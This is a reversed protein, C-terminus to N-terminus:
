QVALGFTLAKLNNNSGNLVDVDRPFFGIFYIVKIEAVFANSRVVDLTTVGFLRKPDFVGHKELVKAAIPVIFLHNLFSYQYSLLFGCLERRAERGRGNEKERKREKEKEGEREKM